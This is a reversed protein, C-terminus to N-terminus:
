TILLIFMEGNLPYIERANGTPYEKGIWDVIQDCQRQSIGEIEDMIVWHVEEDCKPTTLSGQYYILIRRIM